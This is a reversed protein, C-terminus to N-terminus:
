SRMAGHSTERGANGRALAAQEFADTVAMRLSSLLEEGSEGNTRQIQRRLRAEGESMREAAAIEHLTRGDPGSPALRTVTGAVRGIERAMAHFGLESTETLLRLADTFHDLKADLRAVDHSRRALRRLLLVQTVAVMIVGALIAALGIQTMPVALNSSNALINQM